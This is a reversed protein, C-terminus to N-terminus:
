GAVTIGLHRALLPALDILQGLDVTAGRLADYGATIRLDAGRLDVDVCSVRSFDAGLTCGPFTVRTLRAGGFDADRLLCNDFTVDTLKSDRFNVSDLKCDTFTVRRLAASFLQVGSLACGTLKTGQWGAESLDTTVFRTDRVLSDTLRWKRMKIECFTSHHVTCDVFHCGGLDPTDFETDAFTVQEYDEGPLLM